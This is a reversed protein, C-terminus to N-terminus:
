RAPRIVVLRKSFTLGAARLRYFYVGAAAARGSDDRLDWAAENRGERGKADFVAAVHRGALDYIDVRARIEGPLTFAIRAPGAGPLPNPSVDLLAM